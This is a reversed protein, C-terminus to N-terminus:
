SMTFAISLVMTIESMVSTSFVFSATHVRSHQRDGVAHVVPRALVLAAVRKGLEESRLTEGDLAPDDRVLAVLDRGRDDIKGGPLETTNVVPPM